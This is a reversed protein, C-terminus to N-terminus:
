CEKLKLVYLKATKSRSGMEEGTVGEGFIVHGDKSIAMSLISSEINLEKVNFYNQLKGNSGLVHITHTNRDYTIWSNRCINLIDTPLFPMYYSNVKSHGDYVWMRQGENNLKIIKGRSSDYEVFDVVFINGQSDTNLKVILEFLNRKLNDFRFVKLIKGDMTWKELQHECNADVTGVLIHHDATIHLAGPAKPAMEKFERLKKGSKSHVFVKREKVSSSLLTGNPLIALGDSALKRTFNNKVRDKKTDLQQINVLADTLVNGVVSKCYLFFSGDNSPDLSFIRYVETEYIKVVELKIEKTIDQKHIDNEQISGIANTLSESSMGKVFMSSSLPIFIEEETLKQFYKKASDAMKLIEMTDTKTQWERIDKLKEIIHSKREVLKTKEQSISLKTTKLRDDLDVLLENTHRTVENKMFQEHDRIQKKTENYKDEHILVAKDLIFDNYEDKKLLITRYKQENDRIELKKEEVITRIEELDHKKHNQSLCVPCALQECDRCYVCYTQQEHTECRIVKLRAEPKRYTDQQGIDMVLIEKYINSKGSDIFRNNIRISRKNHYNIKEM